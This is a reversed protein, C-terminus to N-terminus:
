DILNGIVKQVSTITDKYVYVNEDILAVLTPLSNVRMKKTLKPEQESHVTAFNVGLPELYDVLKRFYPATKLCPFCWDTYFYILYPAKKSKPLVIKDFQRFYASTIVNNM